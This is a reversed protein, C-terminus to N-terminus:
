QIIFLGLQDESVSILAWPPTLKASSKSAYVKWQYTKGSVLAETAKGDSNYTISTQSSPITINKVTKNNSFGGWIVQGNSNLVEIVYDSTSSYSEWTFVPTVSSVSVPKTSTSDNTPSVISVAGTLSFSRTASAGSVTVFPEGNKVIWDPDMVIGDTKFSARALYMGNPVNNITYNNSVTTASLGPISEKTIPNTLSVDVPISSSALFSVSGTVSGTAGSTLAIASSVAEVGSVVTVSTTASNYGGIWGQVTYNGAPVNFIVFNGSGDSVASYAVTGNTAVVLVNSMATGGTTIKGSIYGTNTLTSPTMQYNNTLTAGLSITFPVASADKAPINDYGQRFIKAYYSGAPLNVSFKGDAGSILSSGVTTNTNANFIYVRANALVASTKADTITGNFTGTTPTTTVVPTIEEKKKCSYALVVLMSLAFIFSKLHKM